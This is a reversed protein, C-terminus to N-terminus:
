EKVRRGLKILLEEADRLADTFGQSRCELPTHEDAKEFLDDLHEILQHKEEWERVNTGEPLFGEGDAIIDDESTEDEIIKLINDKNDENITNGMSHMEEQYQKYAHRILDELRNCKQLGSWADCDSAIPRLHTHTM